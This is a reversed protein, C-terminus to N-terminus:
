QALHKLFWQVRATSAQAKDEGKFGHGAGQFVILKSDVGEKKFAALIDESDSLPVVEDQDGHILLTPPDDASVFAIPSVGAALANDFQLAPYGHDLGSNERLDVPPYYAVVAAIKSAGRELPDDSSSDGDDATNGLMLSLHGGASRGYVGLRSADVGYEAAHLSVYRLARKVDAYAEPVKFRPSSGHRVSFVTFGADLLDTHQKIESDPPSWWSRWGGSVMFLVGAGNPKEPMLVDFTLAMGAKHGYVVDPIASVKEAWAGGVFVPAALLIASLHFLRIM